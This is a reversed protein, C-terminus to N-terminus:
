NRRAPNQLPRPETFENKEFDFIIKSKEKKKSDKLFGIELAKGKRGKLLSEIEYYSM